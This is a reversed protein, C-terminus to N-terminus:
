EDQVVRALVALRVTVVLARKFQLGIIVQRKLGFAPKERAGARSLFGQGIAAFSNFDGFTRRQGQPRQRVHQGCRALATFRVGHEIFQTLEGLLAVDRVIEKRANV